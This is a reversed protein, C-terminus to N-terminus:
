RNHFTSQYTGVEKNYLTSPVSIIHLLIERNMEQVPAAYLCVSVVRSILYVFSIWFYIKEMPTKMTDLSGFWQLLIFYLNVSYSLLVFYGIRDNVSNCLKNIDTYEDRVKKWDM